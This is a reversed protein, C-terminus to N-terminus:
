GLKGLAVATKVSGFWSDALVTDGENCVDQAMRTTCAATVAPKGKAGLEAAFRAQQMATAGEQIEMSLM